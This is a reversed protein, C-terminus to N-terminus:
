SISITFFQGYRTSNTCRYSGMFIITNNTIRQNERMQIEKEKFYEIGDITLIVQVEGSIFVTSNGSICNHLKLDDM